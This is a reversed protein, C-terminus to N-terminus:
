PLTNKVRVAQVNATPNFAQIPSLTFLECYSFSKRHLRLMFPPPFAHLSVHLAVCYGLRVKYKSKVAHFLYTAWYSCSGYDLLTQHLFIYIQKNVLHMNLVESLKM